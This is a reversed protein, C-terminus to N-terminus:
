VSVCDFCITATGVGGYTRAEVAVDEAATDFSAQLTNQLKLVTARRSPDHSTNSCHVEGEPLPVSHKERKSSIDKRIEPLLIWTLPTWRKGHGDM